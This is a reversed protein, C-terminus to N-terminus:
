VLGAAKAAGPFEAAFLKRREADSLGGRGVFAREREHQRLLEVGDIGGTRTLYRDWTLQRPWRRDDHRNLDILRGGRPCQDCLVACTMVTGLTRHRVVRGRWVCGPHVVTVQGMGECLPCAPADPPLAPMPERHKRLAILELGVADVHENPFKPTACRAVLRATCTRLESETAHWTEGTIIPRNALLAEAAAPDAATAAVHFRVWSLFWDTPPLASM